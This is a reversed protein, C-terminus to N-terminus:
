PDLRLLEPCLELKFVHRTEQTIMYNTHMALQIKVTELKIRAEEVCAQALSQESEYHECQTEWKHEQEVEWDSLVKVKLNLKQHKIINSGKLLVLFQQGEQTGMSALLRRPPPPPHISVLYLGSPGPPFSSFGTTDSDSDASSGRTRFVSGVSHPKSDEKLSPMDLSSNDTVSLPPIQNLVQQLTTDAPSRVYGPHVELAADYQMFQLVNQDLASVAPDTCTSAPPPDISPIILHGTHQHLTDGEVLRASGRILNWAHTEPEIDNYCFGLGTSGLKCNFAQYKTKLNQQNNAYDQRTDAHEDVSFIHDAIITHVDSKSSSSKNVVKHHGRSKAEKTSDSFLAGCHEKHRLQM